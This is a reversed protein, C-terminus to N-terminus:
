FIHICFELRAVSSPHLWTAVNKKKQEFCCRSIKLIANLFFILGIISHTKFYLPPPSQSVTGYGLIQNLAEHESFGVLIDYEWKSFTNICSSVALKLWIVITYVRCLQNSAMHSEKSWVFCRHSLFYVSSKTWKVVNLSRKM